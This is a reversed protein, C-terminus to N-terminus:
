ESSCSRSELLFLERMTEPIPRRARVHFFREFAQLFADLTYDSFIDRRHRLMLRVQPDDKPVFEVVLWRRTARHWQEALAWWPLHNGIVLHHVLALALLMDPPEREWFAMRERHNWGLGPSPNTLDIWLPLVNTVGEEAIRQQHREVAVPDADVALTPIGMRGVLRSFHGVNAGLDWVTRPRVDQVWQRLTQEKFAFAQPSYHHQTTYYASWASKPLRWHLRQVTAELSQILGLLAARRLRARPVVDQRSQAKRMWWHQALAHMHVHFFLGWRLRSRWPLLTHALDLPVGDLHVRLLSRLRGDRYAMLALPALFHQCFQRYAEWPQGEQYIEFSLTDIWVMRGRHWQVNFASADKLVMGYELALTQIRLTVLAAQKLLAFPWEYPYSLFTLPEPRLIRWARSEDWAPADVEEHPILLGEKVLRTYLGSKMLHQYHPAYSPHVQRYLVGDPGRFVFGAPDRFSAALRKGRKRDARTM